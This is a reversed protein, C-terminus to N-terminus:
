EVLKSATSAAPGCACLTYAAVAEESEIAEPRREYTSPSCPGHRAMSVAQEAESTASCEETPLRCARSHVVPSAAPTLRISSGAVLWPRAAAPIVEARPRLWVNSLRASPKARPSPQQAATSTSASSLSRAVALTSPQLTIHSPRLALRVAGLPWACCASSRAASASPPM